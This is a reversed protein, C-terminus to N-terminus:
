PELRQGAPTRPDALGLAPGLRRERVGSGVDRFGNRLFSGVLRNPILLPEFGRGVPATRDMFGSGSGRVGFGPPRQLRQAKIKVSPLDGSLRSPAPYWHATPLFFGSM